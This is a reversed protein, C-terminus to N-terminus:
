RGPKAAAERGGDNSSPPDKLAAGKAVADRPRGGIWCRRCCCCGAARAAEGGGRPRRGAPPLMILLTPLLLLLLVAKRAAVDARAAV